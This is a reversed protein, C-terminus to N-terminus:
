TKGTAPRDGGPKLQQASKKGVAFLEETKELLWERRKTETAAGELRNKESLAQYYAIRTDRVLM